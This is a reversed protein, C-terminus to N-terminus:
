MLKAKIRPFYLELKKNQSIAKRDSCFSEEAHARKLRKELEVYKMLFKLASVCNRKSSRCIFVESPNLKAMRVRFINFTM